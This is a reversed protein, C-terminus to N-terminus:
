RVKRRGLLLSENLFVAQLTRQASQGARTDHVPDVLRCPLALRGHQAHGQAAVIFVGQGLAHGRRGGEPGADARGFQQAKVLVPVDHVSRHRQIGQGRAATQVGQAPAGAVGAQAARPLFRPAFQGPQMRRHAGHGVRQAAQFGNVRGVHRTNLRLHRLRGSQPGIIGLPGSSERRAQQGVMRWQGARNKQVVVQM